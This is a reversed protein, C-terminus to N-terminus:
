KLKKQNQIPFMNLTKYGVQIFNGDHIVLYTILVQFNLVQALMEKAPFKKGFKSRFYFIIEILVFSKDHFFSAWIV